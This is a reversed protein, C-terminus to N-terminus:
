RITKFTPSGHGTTLKKARSGGGARRHERAAGIEKRLGRAVVQEDLAAAHDIWRQPDVRDTVDGDAGAADGCDLGINASISRLRDICAALDDHWAEEINMRM